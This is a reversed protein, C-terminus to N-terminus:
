FTQLATELASGLTFVCNPKYSACNNPVAPVSPYHLAITSHPFQNMFCQLGGLKQSVPELIMWTRFIVWKLCPTKQQAFIKVFILIGRPKVSTVLISLVSYTGPHNIWDPCCPSSPKESLHSSRFSCWLQKKMHKAKRVHKLTERFLRTEQLGLSCTKSTPIFHDANLEFYNCTFTFNRCLDKQKVSFTTIPTLQNNQM